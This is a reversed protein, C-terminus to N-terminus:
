ILYKYIILLCSKIMNYYIINETKSGVFHNADKKFDEEALKLDYHPDIKIFGDTLLQQSFGVLTSVFLERGFSSTFDQQINLKNFTQLLIKENKDM